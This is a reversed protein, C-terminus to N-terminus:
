SSRGVVSQMFADMREEMLQDTLGQVGFDLWGKYVTPPGDLFDVASAIDFYPEYNFERRQRIYSELFLDAIEVNHLLALNVRCHGVDIGAPGRCASGWDVIGTVEGDEWLVNAPHYDRHIFCEVFTPPTQRVIEIARSWIDPISTWGPFSMKKVDMYPAYTWSFNNPQLRHVAVLASALEDTCKAFDDPSLEVRGAIKTM